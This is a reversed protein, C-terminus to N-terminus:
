LSLNFKGCELITQFLSRHSGSSLLAALRRSRTPAKKSANERGGRNGIKKIQRVKADKAILRNIFHIIKCNLYRAPTAREGNTSLCVVLTYINIKM